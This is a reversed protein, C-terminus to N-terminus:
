GFGLIQFFCIFHVIVQLVAKTNPQSLLLSAMRSRLDNLNKIEQASPSNGDDNYSKEFYKGLDSPETATDPYNFIFASPM